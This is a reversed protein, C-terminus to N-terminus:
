LGDPYSVVPIQKGAVMMLWKMQTHALNSRYMPNNAEVFGPNPFITVEVSNRVRYQRTQINDWSDHFVMALTSDLTFWQNDFQAENLMHGRVEVRRNKIGAGDLLIKLFYAQDTCCGINSKLYTYISPNAITQFNTEVNISVCGPSFIQEPNGYGWLHSVLNVDFYAELQKENTIKWNKFLADRNDLYLQHAVKYFDDATSNANLNDLLYQRSFIADDVAALNSIKIQEMFDSPLVPFLAAAALSGYALILTLIHRVAMKQSFYIYGSISLVLFFPSLLIYAKRGLGVFPNGFTFLISFNFYALLFRDIAPIALVLMCFAFGYFALGFVKDNKQTRYYKKFLAVM